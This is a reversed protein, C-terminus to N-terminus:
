IVLLLQSNHIFKEIIIPLQSSYEVGHYVLLVDFIYIYVGVIYWYHVLIMGIIIHNYVLGVEVRRTRGHGGRPKEMRKVSATLLSCNVSGCNSSLLGSFFIPFYFV